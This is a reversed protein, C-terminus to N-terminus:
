PKKLRPDSLWRELEDLVGCKEAFERARDTKEPHRRVLMAVDWLDLAGGAKLKLHLLDDVDVVRLETGNPMPINQAREWDIPVVPPLIQFTVGSLKGEVVWPIDGELVDGWRHESSIGAGALTSQIDEPQLSCIFDVDETARVHGWASVALGGVLLCSDGLTSALREAVRVLDDGAM